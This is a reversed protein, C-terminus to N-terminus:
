EEWARKAGASTGPTAMSSGNYTPGPSSSLLFAVPSSFQPYGPPTSLRRIRPLSIGMALSSRGVTGPAIRRSRGHEPHCSRIAVGGPTSPPSSPTDNRRSARLLALATIEVPRGHALRPNVRGARTIRPRECDGWLCGYRMSQIHHVRHRLDGAGRLSQLRGRAAVVPFVPLRYSQGDVDIGGDLCHTEEYESDGM